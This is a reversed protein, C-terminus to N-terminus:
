SGLQQESTIRFFIYQISVLPKSISDYIIVNRCFSAQSNKNNTDLEKTADTLGKISEKAAEANSNQNAAITALVTNTEGARQLSTM